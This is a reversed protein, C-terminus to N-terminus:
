RRLIDTEVYNITPSIKFNFMIPGSINLRSGPSDYYAYTIGYYQTNGMNHLFHDELLMIM